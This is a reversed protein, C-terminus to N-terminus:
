TRARKDGLPRSFRHTSRGAAGPHVAEWAEGAGASGPTAADADALSRRPSSAVHGARTQGLEVSALPRHRRRREHLAEGLSGSWGDHKRAPAAPTQSHTVGKVQDVVIDVVAELRRLFSHLHPGRLQSGPAGGRTPDIETPGGELATFDVRREGVGPKPSERPTPRSHSLTVPTTGENHSVQDPELLAELSHRLAELLAASVM